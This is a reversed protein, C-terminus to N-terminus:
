ISVHVFKPSQVHINDIVNTGGMFMLILRQDMDTDNSVRSLSRGEKGTVGMPDINYKATDMIESKREDDEDYGAAMNAREIVKKMHWELRVQGEYLM